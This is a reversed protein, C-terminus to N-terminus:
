HTKSWSDDNKVNTPYQVKLPPTSVKRVSHLQLYLLWKLTVFPPHPDAFRWLQPVDYVYEIVKPQTPLMNGLLM